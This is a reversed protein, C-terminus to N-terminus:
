WPWHRSAHGFPVMGCDGFVQVCHREGHWVQEIVTVFQVLQVVEVM